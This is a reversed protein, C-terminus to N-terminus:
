GQGSLAVNNIKEHLAGTADRWGKIVQIRDLNASAPDRAARILLTLSKGASASTLDGGM